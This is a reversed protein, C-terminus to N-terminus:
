KQEKNAKLLKEVACKLLIKLGGSKDLEVGVSTAPVLTSASVRLVQFNRSLTAQNVSSPILESQQCQKCQVCFVSANPNLKLLFVEVFNFLSQLYGFLYIPLDYKFRDIGATDSRRGWGAVLGCQWLPQHSVSPILNVSM